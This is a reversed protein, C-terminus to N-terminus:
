ELFTAKKCCNSWSFSICDFIIKGIQIPSNGTLPDRTPPPNWHIETSKLPNESKWTVTTISPLQKFSSDQRVHHCCAPCANHESMELNESGAFFSVAFSLLGKTLNFGIIIKYRNIISHWQMSLFLWPVLRFRVQRCQSQANQSPFYTSM